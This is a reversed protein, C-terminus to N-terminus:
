YSYGLKIEAISQIRCRLETIQALDEKTLNFLGSSTIVSDITPIIIYHAFDFNEINGYTFSTADYDFKGSDINSNYAVSRLNPHVGKSFGHSLIKTNDFWTDFFSEEMGTRKLIDEKHKRLDIKTIQDKFFSKLYRARDKDGVAILGFILQKSEDIFRKARLPTNLDSMSWAKLAFKAQTICGGQLYYVALKIDKVLPNVEHNYQNHIEILSDIAKGYDPHYM